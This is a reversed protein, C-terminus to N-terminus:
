ATYTSQQKVALSFTFKPDRGPTLTNHECDLVAAHNKMFDTGLLCNVTLNHVVVFAHAVVFTGLVITVMVRGVINLPSGNAGVACHSTQM